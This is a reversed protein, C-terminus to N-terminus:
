MLNEVITPMGAKFFIYNSVFLRILNIIIVLIEKKKM